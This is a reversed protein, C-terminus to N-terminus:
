RGGGGACPMRECSSRKRRCMGPSRLQPPRRQRNRRTNLNQHALRLRQPRRRRILRHHPLRNGDLSRQTHLRKKNATYNSNCSNSSKKSVSSNRHRPKCPTRQVSSHTSHLFMLDRHARTQPGPVSRLPCSQSASRSPGSHLPASLSTPYTTM